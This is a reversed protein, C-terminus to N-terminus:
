QSAIPSRFQQFAFARSYKQKRKTFPHGLNRHIHHAIQKQEFRYMLHMTTHNRKFQHKTMKIKRDDDDDNFQMM